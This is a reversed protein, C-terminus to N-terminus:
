PATWDLAYIEAISTDIMVTPADDPALGTWADFGERVSTIGMFSAIQELKRDSIRVRYFATNKFDNFYLYKSDRSWNPYGIGMKVLDQWLRSSFDYLMLRTSDRTMAALYRGDPSWRASFLGESGPVKTVQRTKLDVIELEREREPALETFPNKSFVLRKGDTSWSPDIEEATDQPLLREPEGGDAAVIYVKWAEGTKLGSFAIQKGDPSWRPLYSQLPPYALQLKQSGDIKSRMLDGRPYSLFTVWQGDKSFDACYISEGGLYPVFSKSRADYRVLKGRPQIGLTFIKKGDRSIVPSLTNMPGTTLQTPQRSARSFLGTKQPLAWLSTLGDRTAQFVVYKGDPTWVGCCEESAGNWGPLLPHLNTGDARVQWLSDTNTKTDQVTLELLMGGPSWHVAFGVGPLTMIKKAGTGDPRATYLENGRAFAIRQMDPSWAAAQTSWALSQTTINVMLGGLRRPSGALVPASWLPGRDALKTAQTALFQSGDPSIDLLLGQPLPVSTVPAVEGGNVSVQAKDWPAEGFYVRSGDSLLAPFKVRGDDTLQVMGTVQASSSPRFMWFLRAVLLVLLAAALWPLARRLPARVRDREGPGGEGQSLPGAPLDPLAEGERPLASREGADGTLTEEITIRAEGIDRLRQKADKVLCRRILKQISLPATTPLANWDPEKTIVAALVDSITEGDFAKRASLMEYLVCGFAWIDCRRDVRQGRAQEPSMYAATGLIMGPETGTMSLTPSNQDTAHADQGRLPSVGMGSLVKALGFDLVKVTGEPTIKVNAPKLDRHIVGREHAYELAEAIQRAISLLEGLQLPPKVGGHPSTFEGSRAPPPHGEALAIREGLTAGEVLEMALARIGNSEELGYIAAINPHNLSALVQAEREFRAMPEADHALAQPLIKLAVDRQLKTDRARYVEGMGGAGLSATVRYHAIMTGLELAATSAAPSREAKGFAKAAMEVPPTELFSGAQDEHALLSEVEARLGPDGDCTKALFEARASGDLELAQHYIREIEQWRENM